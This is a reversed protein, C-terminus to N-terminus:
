APREGGKSSATNGLINCDIFTVSAGDRAAVVGGEFGKADTITLGDLRLNSSWVAFTPGIGGAKIIAQSQQGTGTIKLSTGNAVELSRNIAITGHWTVEFDNGPCTLLDQALQVAQEASSVDITELIREGTDKDECSYLTKVSSSIAAAPRVAQLFLLLVLLSTLLMGM